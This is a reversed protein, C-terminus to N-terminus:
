HSGDSEQTQAPNRFSALMNLMQATQPPMIGQLLNLMTENTNAGGSVSGLVSNLNPTMGGLMALLPLINQIGMGGSAGGRMAQMLTLLRLLDPPAGEKADGAKTGRMAEMMALLGAIDPASGPDPANWNGAADGAKGGRMAEMLAMLRAIDPPTGPDPANANDSADAPIEGDRPERTKSELMLRNYPYPHM